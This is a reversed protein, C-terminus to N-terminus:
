RKLARILHNAYLTARATQALHLARIQNARAQLVNSRTRATMAASTQRLRKSRALAEM